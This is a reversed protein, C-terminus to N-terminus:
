DNGDLKCSLDVNVECMATLWDDDADLLEAKNITAESVEVLWNEDAADFPETEDLSSNQDVSNKIYFVM